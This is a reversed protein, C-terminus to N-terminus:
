STWEGIPWSGAAGAPCTWAARGDVVRAQMPHNQPHAPCRPWNTPLRQRCLEEVAWEQVQDALHAVRDAPPLGPDLWVGSGSGDDAWLEASQAPVSDQWTSPEVRPVPAGGTRLDALIRDLVEDIERTM